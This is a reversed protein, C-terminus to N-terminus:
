SICYVLNIALSIDLVKTSSASQLSSSKGTDAESNPFHVREKCSGTNGM